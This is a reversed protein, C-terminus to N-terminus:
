RAAQPRRWAVVGRRVAALGSPRQLLRAIFFALVFVFAPADFVTVLVGAIALPVAWVAFVLGAREAGTLEALAVDSAVADLMSDATAAVAAAPGSTKDPKGPAPPTKAAAPRAAAPGSRPSPQPQPPKPSAPPPPAPEPRRLVTPEFPISRGQDDVTFVQDFAVREFDIARTDQGYSDGMLGILRGQRVRAKFAIPDRLAGVMAHVTGLDGTPGAASPAPSMDTETFLGFGTNRRRGPRSAAFQRSLDPLEDALDWALAEM